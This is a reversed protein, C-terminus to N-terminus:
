HGVVQPVAAPLPEGDPAEVVLAYPTSQALAEARFADIAVLADTGVNIEHEVFYSRGPEAEIRFAPADSVETTLTHRGATALYCFHANGETAGVVEGNDRLVVTLAQGVFSDRFVCIKALGEPAAALPAVPPKVPFGVAYGSCATLLLLPLLRSM